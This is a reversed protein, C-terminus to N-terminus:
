AKEYLHFLQGLRKGKVEQKAKKPPRVKPQADGPLGLMDRVDAGTTM